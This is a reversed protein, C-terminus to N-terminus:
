KRIKKNNELILEFFKPNDIILAFIANGWANVEDEDYDFGYEDAIAHLNEHLLAQLQRQIPHKTSIMIKDEGYIIRGRLEENKDGKLEEHYSVEYYTSCIKQKKITKKLEM